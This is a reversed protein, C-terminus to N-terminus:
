HQSKKIRVCFRGAVLFYKMHYLGPGDFVVINFLDNYEYLTEFNCIIVSSSKLLNEYLDTM